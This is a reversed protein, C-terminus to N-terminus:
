KKKITHTLAYNSVALFNEDYPYMSQGFKLWMEGWSLGEELLYQQVLPHRTIDNNEQKTLDVCKEEDYLKCQLDCELKDCQYAFLAEKT